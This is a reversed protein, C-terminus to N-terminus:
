GDGRITLRTRLIAFFSELETMDAEMSEQKGTQGDARYLEVEVVRIKM